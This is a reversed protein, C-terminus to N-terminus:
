TISAVRASVLYIFDECAIEVQFGRKGANMVMTDLKQASSDLYVQWKKHLLALASIGGVKLETLKEAENYTVMKVRKNQSAMALKKLNLTRNSPILSLIPKENSSGKSVLTKYLNGEPIALFRAVEQANAFKIPHEYIKYHISHSRLLRLSHIKPEKIKVGM